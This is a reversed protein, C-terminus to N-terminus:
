VWEWTIDVRGEAETAIAKFAAPSLDLDYDSCGPCMDTVQVKVQADGRKILIEKFCNPNDNGNGDDEFQVHNLACIYDSATNTIGCAGLGPAYYTAQGSYWTGSGSSATGSTAAAASTSTSSSAIVPEPSTSTSVPISAPSTSVPSTSVPSTSVPSTSVSTSVPTSVPTSTVEVISSSSEPDEAIALAPPISSSSSSPQQTVYVTSTATSPAQTSIVEYSTSIPVGSKDVFVHENEYVYRTVHVFETVIDRKHINHHHVPTAAIASILSFAYFLTSYLM